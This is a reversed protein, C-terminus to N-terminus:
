YIFFIQSIRDINWIAINISFLWQFRFSRSLSDIIPFSIKTM